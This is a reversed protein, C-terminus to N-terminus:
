VTAKGRQALLEAKYADIETDIWAVRKDGLKVRKPFKGAKELRDITPRSFAIEKEPKLEPFLLFRM